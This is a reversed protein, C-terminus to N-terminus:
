QNRSLFTHLQLQPFDAPAIESDCIETGKVYGHYSLRGRRDIVIQFLDRIDGFLFNIEGKPSIEINWAFELSGEALSHIFVRAGAISEDSPSFFEDGDEDAVAIAVQDDLERLRRARNSYISNPRIALEEPQDGWHDERSAGPIEWTDSFQACNRM